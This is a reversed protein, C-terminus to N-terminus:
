AALGSNKNVNPNKNNAKKTLANVNPQCVGKIRDAVPKSLTEPWMYIAHSSKYGMAKAALAPTGGLLNIATQKNM